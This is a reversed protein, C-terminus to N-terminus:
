QPRGRAVVPIPLIAASRGRPCGVRLALQSCAVALMVIRANQDGRRMLPPPMMPQMPAPADFMWRVGLKFDHSTIDRFHM